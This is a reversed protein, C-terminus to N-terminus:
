CQNEVWDALPQWYHQPREVQSTAHAANDATSCSTGSVRCQHKINRPVYNKLQAAHGCRVLLSKFAVISDAGCSFAPASFLRSQCKGLVAFCTKPAQWPRCFHKSIGCSRLIIRSMERSQRAQKEYPVTEICTTGSRHLRYEM